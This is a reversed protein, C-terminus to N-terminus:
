TIRRSGFRKEKHNRHGIGVERSCVVIGIGPRRRPGQGLLESGLPPNDLSIPGVQRVLGAFQEMAPEEGRRQHQRKRKAKEQNAIENKRRKELSEAYEM